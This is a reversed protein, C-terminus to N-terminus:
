AQAGVPSPVAHIRERRQTMTLVAAPVISLVSLAVAWWFTHAFAAATDTSAASQSIGAVGPTSTSSAIALQHELVVALLATGVAGGVRQLANLASTARPVEASSLVAYAAAMVPMMACGLGIGRVVLAGGLMLQSTHATVLAFPITALTMVVTGFLAVPGGGIRDTLRGSFPMALAAGVGQPAMLLGATLPSAGRALQYYLPFIIMAGFLAAGILFTTVTAASFASSRFLRIDILPRPARYSYTAFASLLILGAVIPGFAIPHTIGGQTQIESLGFVLGVLGPSVLLFGRWDLHGADARGADASLLRSALVLGIVAVPVNVFFIWRWSASEVIAGGIVPGLVPGLLVAVGIVSMVRGIRKPGATQALLSMGVPMIM